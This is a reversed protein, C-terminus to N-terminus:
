PALDLAARFSGDMYFPVSTHEHVIKWGVSQRALCATARMWWAAEEGSKTRANVHIFGYAFAVDGRVIIKMDQLQQNVPGDWTSLWQVLQRKDIRHSLPPALDFLVADPTYQAVIGGADKNRLGKTIAEMVETIESEANLDSM